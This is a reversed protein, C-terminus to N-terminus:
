GPRVPNGFVVQVRDLRELTVVPAQGGISEQRDRPPGLRRRALPDPHNRNGDLGEFVQSDLGALVDGDYPAQLRYREDHLTRRQVVRVDLHHAPEGVFELVVEDVVRAYRGRVQVPEAHM